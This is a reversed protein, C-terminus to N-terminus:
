LDQAIASGHGSFREMSKKDAELIGQYADPLFKEMWSMLTPGVNFSINSFNNVTQIARDQNNLIQTQTNPLYCEAAIRENWDHFPSATKQEEIVGSWPNERPPQYFHGHICLFHNM